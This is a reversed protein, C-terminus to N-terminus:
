SKRRAWSAQWIARCHIRDEVVWGNSESPKRAADTQSGGRPAIRRGVMPTGFPYELHSNWIGPLNGRVVISKTSLSMTAPDWNSARWSRGPGVLGHFRHHLAIRRPVCSCVSRNESPMKTPLMRQCRMSNCKISCRSSKGIAAVTQSALFFEGMTGHEGLEVHAAVQRETNGHLGFDGAALQRLNNTCTVRRSSERASQIAPLLLAILAGIIAIVVLLEVLTFAAQARYIFRLRKVRRSNMM